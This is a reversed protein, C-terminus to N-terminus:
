GQDGHARYDISNIISNYLEAINKGTEDNTNGGIFCQGKEIVALTLQLAIEGRSM